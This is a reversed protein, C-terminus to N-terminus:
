IDLAPLKEITKLTELSVTIVRQFLELPYRPNEMTEIGWLNADNVIGSEKDEMVAQREMVWELAPKGNVVYEYAKLPIDKITIHENYIVVSKDAKSAFRMKKVRYHDPTLASLRYKGSDITVAHPKETEYNLHLRALDRGAKSFARFDAFTKVAPIRPIEKGLNDAFRSRYDPAHLLGYIYYFVDDRTIGDGEGIAPYAAQFHALGAASICDRRKYTGAEDPKADTFFEEADAEQGENKEYLYLPFYQSGVM